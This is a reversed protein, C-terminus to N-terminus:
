KRETTQKKLIFSVNKWKRLYLMNKKKKERRFEVGM